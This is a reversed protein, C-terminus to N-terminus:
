KQMGSLIIESLDTINLDEKKQKDSSFFFADDWTHMGQLGSHHFIREQTISGKLDFGYRPVAIIDPGREAFLGSYAEERYLVFDIVKEGEYELSLLAQKIKERLREEQDKKVSGKPYKGEINLYIRSPDMAFAESSGDIDNLSEPQDREFRLFGHERLWANLYVESKIGTFGHDSLMYFGQSGKGGTFDMFRRYVKGILADVKHYYNLFAIHYPDGKNELAYWLYHHLRDSGTIVLELYDWQENEFFYEFARERGKLTKDLADLCYDLDQRAKATDIDIEYRLEKLKAELGKPYVAKRPDIAVFGSILVGELPKAPYTSPQNIIVSRKKRQGLKDWLTPAQLDRFSPFRLQYSGPKLDTFGFIGHVGPNAGTMFSPWSVASIEPLTVKMRYLNGTRVIASINPLVGQEMLQLLLSHPVGDLGVVCVKEQAKKKSFLGM